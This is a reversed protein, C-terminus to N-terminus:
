PLSRQGGCPSRRLWRPPSHRIPLGSWAAAQQPSLIGRTELGSALCDGKLYMVVKAGMEM